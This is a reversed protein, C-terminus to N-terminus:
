ILLVRLIASIIMNMTAVLAISLDNELSAKDAQPIDLIIISHGSSTLVSGLYGKPMEYLKPLINVLRVAVKNLHYFMQDSPFQVV